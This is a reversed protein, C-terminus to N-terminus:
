GLEFSTIGYTHGMDPYRVVSGKYMRATEFAPEMGYRRALAVADANTAPVDLFVDKGVIGSCLSRFLSDADSPTDAFLPGIRHGHRSPRIAGYGCVKGDRVIARENAGDMDLWARLFSARPYGTIAEDYDWIQDFPVMHLDVTIGNGDVQPAIGGYRHNAHAYAYGSRRYNDQQAVVGDLGSPIDGLHELAKNWIALGFGKGRYEPRVIYFGVFGFTRDYRVASISSVITGGMEGVFFGDPDAAHFATMDSLGPNWGEDMAWSAMTALDDRTAKRISYANM